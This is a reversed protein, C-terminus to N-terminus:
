VAPPIISSCLIDNVIIYTQRFKMFDVPNTPLTYGLRTGRGAAPILCTWLSRKIKKNTFQSVKKLDKKFLIRGM